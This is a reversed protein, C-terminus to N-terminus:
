RYSPDFRLQQGCKGCHKPNQLEPILTGCNPCKEIVGAGCKTCFAPVPDSAQRWAGLVVDCAANTCIASFISM